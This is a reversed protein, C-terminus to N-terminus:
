DLTQFYAAIQRHFMIIRFNKIMRVFLATFVFSLFRFALRHFECSLDNLRTIKKDKRGDLYYALTGREPIKFHAEVM